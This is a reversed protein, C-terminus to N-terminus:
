SNEQPAPPAKRPGHAKRGPSLPGRRTRRRNMSPSKEGLIKVGKQVFVSRLPDSKWAEGFGEEKLESLIMLCYFSQIQSEFIKPLPRLIKDHASGQTDRLVKGLLSRIHTMDEIEAKSVKLDEFTKGLIRDTQATDFLRQLVLFLLPGQTSRAWPYRELAKSLKEFYRSEKKFYQGFEPSIIKWADIRELHQFFQFCHGERLAKFFEERIRERKAEALKSVSGELAHKTKSDFHFGTRLQFRLARM